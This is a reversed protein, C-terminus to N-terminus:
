ENDHTGNGVSNVEVNFLEKVKAPYLIYTYVRSDPKKIAMGWECGQQLALRITQADTHTVQAIKKIANM